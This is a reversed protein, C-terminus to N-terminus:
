LVSLIGGKSLQELFYSFINCIVIKAKNRVQVCQQLMNRPVSIHKTGTSVNLCTYVRDCVNEPVIDRYLCM